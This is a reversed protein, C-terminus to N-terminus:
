DLSKDLTKNIWLTIDLKSTDICGLRNGFDYAVDGTKHKRELWIFGHGIEHCLNQLNKLSNYDQYEFYIERSPYSYFGEVNCENDNKECLDIGFVKIKSVRELYIEDVYDLYDLFRLRGLLDLHYFEVPIGKYDYTEGPKEDSINIIEGYDGILYYYNSEKKISEVKLTIDQYFYLGIALGLLTGVILTIVFKKDIANEPKPKM